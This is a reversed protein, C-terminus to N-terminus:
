HVITAKEIEGQMILKLRKLDFPSVIKDKHPIVLPINIRENIPVIAHSGRKMIVDYGLEAYADVIDDFTAKIKKLNTADALMALFKRSKAGQFSPQIQFPRVETKQTYNNYQPTFSTINMNKILFFM